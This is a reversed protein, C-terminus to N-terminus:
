SRVHVWPVDSSPDPVVPHMYHIVYGLSDTAHGVDDHDDAERTGEKYARSNLDNILNQCRPHVLLRREGAANCFMANTAAFREVRHPNSRPYRVVKREFAKCNVIHSYDTETARTNRNRATADGIFLWTGRHTAAYREALKALAAPTNTNRMWLEDFVVWRYKGDADRRQQLLTWAMPDVNFDSGVVIPLGPDYRAETSVNLVPDFAYFVLGSTGQWVAGYQEDFDRQDMSRQASLVEDPSLIDSSPWTYAEYEQGLEGRAASDFFAKFEAAAPGWRKPVGIRWCWANRHALAPRVSLDFAKPKQDCSEDIVGGDWQAGEIRAPRDMGVVYLTSGFVTRLSLESVRPEGDIWERPILDLLKQWAIRKAQDRTPLAYFYMPDGWPKRVPLMRVIRRRALETKGSGRGCAAAVFRASTRWLRAQLPHPRLPTWAPTLAM